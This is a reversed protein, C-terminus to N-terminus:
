SLRCINPFNWLSKEQYNAVVNYNYDLM